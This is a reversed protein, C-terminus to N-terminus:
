RAYSHNMVIGYLFENARDLWRLKSSRIFVSYELKNKESVTKKHNTGAIFYEKNMFHVPRIIQNLLDM